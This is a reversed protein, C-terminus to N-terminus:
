RALKVRTKVGGRTELLWSGLVGPRVIVADGVKVQANLDRELQMWLQGNDLTVAFRDSSLRGVAVIQGSVPGDKAKAAPQPPLTPAPAPAVVPASRQAVPAAPAQVGAPRAPKGFTGDYCALRQADDYIASCRHNEAASANCSVAILAGIAAGVLTINKMGALIRRGVSM